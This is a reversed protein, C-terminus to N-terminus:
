APVKLQPVECRDKFGQRTLGLASNLRSRLNELAIIATLEVFQAEDLHARLRKVLEDDVTPPTETMAEAYEMVLRELPNFLTSERWHPVAELKATSIGHGHLIWYGFDMCWPCGIKVTAALDALDRIKVDLKRWKAAGQELRGLTQAVPMNHAQARFPDLVEGFRRRLFWGGIRYGLTQPPDLSIRAM